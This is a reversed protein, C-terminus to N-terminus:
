LFGILRGPVLEKFVTHDIVRILIEHPLVAHVAPIVPVGHIIIKIHDHDLPYLPFFFASPNQRIPSCIMVIRFKIMRMMTSPVTNTKATSTHLLTILWTVGSIADAMASEVKGSTLM